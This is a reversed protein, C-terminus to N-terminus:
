LKRQIISLISFYAYSFLYFYKKLGLPRGNIQYESYLTINRKLMDIKSRSISGDAVRYFLLQEKLKICKAGSQLVRLWLHFDEIAKYRFDENFTLENLLEKKIIVSSNAIINKKLLKNHTITKFNENIKLKCKKYNKISDLTTFQVLETSSFNVENKSMIDLQIELKQSHWIDDSDMFAIYEGTAVKLGFNRPPAPRGSNKPLIHLHIPADKLIYNNIIDVSRDTSCDDVIIVEFKKYTQALISDITDSIFKESNYNPIIISVLGFEKRM